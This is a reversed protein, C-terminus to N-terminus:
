GGALLRNIEASLETIAVGLGPSEVAEPVDAILQPVELGCSLTILVGEFDQALEMRGIVFGDYEIVEAVRLGSRSVVRLSTLRPPPCLRNEALQIV